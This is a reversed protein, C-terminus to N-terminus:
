GKIPMVRLNDFCVRVQWDNFGFHEHGPGLLPARDAFSLIEMDDVLWRLTKGDRRELKFRYPKNPLVRARKFETTDSVLEVQKRDKAHEDLRALVHFQNRWGGFIALYSTADDYSVGSAASQGDGWVEVKLDGDESYTVADFEIRANKPLRRKLWVPHNRANEGCLQGSTLKWVASTTRYDTGLATREFDDVFDESLAPDPEEPDASPLDSSKLVPMAKEVRTVESGLNAEVPAPVPKKPAAETDGAERTRPVCAVLVIALWCLGSSPLRSGVERSAACRLRRPFRSWSALGM